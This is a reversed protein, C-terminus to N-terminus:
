NLSGSTVKLHIVAIHELSMCVELLTISLSGSVLPTLLSSVDVGGTINLMIVCEGGSINLM